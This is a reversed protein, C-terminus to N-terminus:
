SHFEKLGDIPKILIRGLQLGRDEFVEELFDSYLSAISGVFCVPYENVNNYREINKSLFAEFGSKILSKIYPHQKNEYFFKSFSALYRNPSKEKYVAKLVKPWELQLESAIKEHLDKPIGRKFYDNLFTKGLYAGSGEDGLLYGLPPIKDVIKGEIFQCSNAGTGLICAIGNQKGLLARAAGLMDDEIQVASNPLLTKLANSVTHDTEGKICGAGYFHVQEIGSHPLTSFQENLAQKIEETDHFFPNIGATEFNKITQGSQILLWDTKTSGSDAILIM